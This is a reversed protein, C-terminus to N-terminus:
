EAGSLDAQLAEPGFTQCLMLEALEVLDSSLPRATYLPESAVTASILESLQLGLSCAPKRPLHTAQAGM